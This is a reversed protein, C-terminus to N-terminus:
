PQRSMDLSQVPRCKRKMHKPCQCFCNFPDGEKVDLVYCQCHCNHTGPKSSDQLPMGPKYETPTREIFTTEVNGSEAAAKYKIYENISYRRQRGVDEEASVSVALVAVLVGLFVLKSAAM